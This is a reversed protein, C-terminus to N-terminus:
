TSNQAPTPWQASDPDRGGETALCLAGSLDFRAAVGHALQEVIQHAAEGGQAPLQECVVLQRREHVDVHLGLVDPGLVAEIGGDAVVRGDDHQRRHRTTSAPGTPVESSSRTPFVGSTSSGRNDDCGPTCSYAFSSPWFGVPEILSRTARAITSAASCAPSSSGPRSSSSGVLPLVPM